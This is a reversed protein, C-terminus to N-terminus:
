QPRAEALATAREELAQDAGTLREDHQRVHEAWSPVLFTEVFQHRDAGDRYLNWRSAGSRQRSRRVSERAELFRTERDEPVRYTVTVLVPGDDPEPDFDLHPEPWYSAPSRDMGEIDRLAWWRLSVAGALMLAGAALFVAVLGFQEALVGWVLAAVAQGGVFVIQYTSLGGARVLAPLFLPMTANLNALGALWAAGAAFLVVTVAAPSDVLAVVLLAVAYVLSALLVIGNTSTLRRLRPPPSPGPSPG